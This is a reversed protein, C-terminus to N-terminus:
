DASSVCPTTLDDSYFMQAYCKARRSVELHGDENRHISCDDAIDKRFVGTQSGISVRNGITCEGIISSHAALAVGRGMRPYKGGHAGVTCGQLAVFYDSYDAKGLVTGSGHFVLFIDPLSTDYMCDFAHLAKNLYYLKSLLVPDADLKWLTNALFWLYMLYHDSYLHNMFSQSGECYRRLSVHKFCNHLRDLASDVATAHDCLNATHGDPFFVSLQRHTYTLLETRPLSLKM